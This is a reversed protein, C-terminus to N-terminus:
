EGLARKADAPGPRDAPPAPPAEAVKTAAAEEGTKTDDRLVRELHALLSDESPETGPTPLREARASDMGASGPQDAPPAPPAEAVKTAADEEGTKTDDRLVRELHALLPDESPETGPTPLREARARDTDASGPQDAPPAPPAEAVKTAADEEGTRTDDRLVRELHALLSDESPETGPTPLREARARDTDASGPQDAPPALPAEAVKTAAAEEGTKTDDRLVRELHALLSDESPETGPTPLREARARDTDASGPQDAPPAPPAEAVKTEADEEGTRGDGFLVREIHVGLQRLRAQVLFIFSEDDRTADAM